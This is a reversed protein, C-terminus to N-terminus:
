KCILNYLFDITEKPQQDLPKNLQWERVVEWCSFANWVCKKQEVFLKDEYRKKVTILVDELTIPRGLIKFNYNTHWERHIKDFGEDWSKKNKEKFDYCSYCGQHLQTMMGTNGLCIFHKDKDESKEELYIVECGFKLEMIEPVIEQIAKKLKDLKQQNTM